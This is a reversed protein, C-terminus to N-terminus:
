SAAPSGSPAIRVVSATAERTEGPICPVVKPPPGSAQATARSNRLITSSSFSRSFIRARPASNRSPSIFSAAFNPKMRSIRLSPRIIADFERNFARREDAFGHLAAQEDVTGVIKRQTQQRGKDDSARLHAFEQSEKFKNKCFSRLLDGRQIGRLGCIGPANGMSRCASFIVVDVRTAGIEKDFSKSVPASHLGACVRSNSWSEASMLARGM